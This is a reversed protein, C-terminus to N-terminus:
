RGGSNASTRWLERRNGDRNGDGKPVRHLMRLGAPWIQPGGVVRSVMVRATRGLGEREPPRARSRMVLGRPAEGVLGVLEGTRLLVWFVVPLRENSSFNAVWGEAPCLGVIQDLSVDGSKISPRM